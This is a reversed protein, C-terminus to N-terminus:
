PQKRWEQLMEMVHRYAIVGWRGVHGYPVLLGSRLDGFMTSFTLDNSIFTILLAFTLVNLSYITVASFVYGLAHIDSQAERLIYLNLLLHFSWTFGILFVPISFYRGVPYLHEILIWLGIVVLTYLPFFYPALIILPNAKTARVSGGNRTVRISKVRGRFAIVWLAHTLEHGVVYALMPKRFAVFFILHSVFGIVFVLVNPMLDTCAATRQVAVMTLGIAAPLLAIGVIFYVL